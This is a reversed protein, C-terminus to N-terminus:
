QTTERIQRTEKYLVHLIMLSVQREGSYKNKKAYGVRSEEKLQTLNLQRYTGTTKLKPRHGPAYRGTKFTQFSSSYLVSVCVEVVM